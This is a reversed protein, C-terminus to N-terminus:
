DESNKFLLDRLYFLRRIGKPWSSATIQENWSPQHGLKLQLRSLMWVLGHEHLFDIGFGLKEAHHWAIQIFINVMASMKLKRTHDVDASTVPFQEILVAPPTNERNM